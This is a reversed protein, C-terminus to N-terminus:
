RSSASKMHERLMALSGDIPPLEAGLSLQRLEELAADTAAVAENSVAFYTDLWVRADDISARYLEARSQLLANQATRLMAQLNADALFRQVPGLKPLQTDDTRRVRVLRSLDALLQGGLGADAPEGAPAGPSDDAAQWDPRRLDEALPLEPVGAALANLQLAAGTVDVRPVSQLASLEDSIAARVPVLAPDGVEALKGDALRLASVALDVDRVLTLRQNALLLLQEVEEMMWTDVSRGIDDYVRELSASLADFERRFEAFSADRGRQEDQLAGRMEGGLAGLGDELGGLRVRLAEQSAAMEDYRASVRDVVARQSGSELAHTVEVRYWVFGAAAFALLSVALAVLALRQTTTAGSTPSQSTTEQM